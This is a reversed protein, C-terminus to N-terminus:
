AQAEAPPLRPPELLSKFQSSVDSLEKLTEASSEGEPITGVLKEIREGLEKLKAQKEHLEVVLSDMMDAVEHMFDNKRFQVRFDYDGESARKISQKLRYLPGAVRHSHILAYLGVAVLPILAIVVNMLAFSEMEKAIDLEIKYRQLLVQKFMLIFIVNSAIVSLLMVIWTAVMLSLYSFQMQKDVLIKGRKRRKPTEEPEPKGSAMDKEESM